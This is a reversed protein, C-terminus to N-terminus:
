HQSLPTLPPCCRVSTMKRFSQRLLIDHEKRVKYISLGHWHHVVDIAHTPESSNDQLSVSRLLVRIPKFTAFPVILVSLPRSMM